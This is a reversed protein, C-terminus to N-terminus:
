NRRSERERKQAYYRFATEFDDPADGVPAPATNRVTVNRELARSRKERIQQVAPNSQVAKGNLAKYFDLVAIADRPDDSAGMRQVADPQKSFWDVFEQSQVAEKFDPHVELVAAEATDRERRQREEFMPALEQKVGGLRRDLEEQLAEAIEPYDQMLNQMRESYESRTEDSRQGSDQLKAELDAIKKQLAAQRGLDSRYRHEWDAARKEAQELQVQWEPKDEDSPADTADTEAEAAAAERDFGEDDEHDTDQDAPASAAADDDIGDRERSIRAFEKEFEDGEAAPNAADTQHEEAM